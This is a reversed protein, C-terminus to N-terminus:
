FLFFLRDLTKGTMQQKKEVSPMKQRRGWPWWGRATPKVATRRLWAAITAGTSEVLPGKTPAKLINWVMTRWSLTSVCVMRFCLCLRRKSFNFVVFFFCKLATENAGTSESYHQFRSSDLIEFGTFKAMWFWQAFQPFHEIVWHSLVWHNHEALSELWPAMSLWRFFAELGCSVSPNLCLSLSLLFVTKIYFQMINCTLM